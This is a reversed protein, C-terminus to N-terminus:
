GENIDASSVRIGLAQGLPKVIYSYGLVATLIASVGTVVAAVYPEAEPVFSQVGWLATFGIAAFLASLRLWKESVVGLFKVAQVLLIVFAGLQVGAIVLDIEM